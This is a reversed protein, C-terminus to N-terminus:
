IIGRIVLVLVVCSALVFLAVLMTGTSLGGGKGEGRAPPIMGAKRLAGVLPKYLLMTAAANLGGKILNFPLFVPLLMGALAERPIGMYLPTIFYNWLLMVVVMAMVGAVLGVVASKLSQRRKYIASATCAFACTSLVNMAFGIFATSSVTLMEILSVVVSVAAAALPGYIFGAIVIIIDKPDYKLFEVSSIPIRFLYMVLYSLAALVGLTVVMKTRQTSKAQTNM